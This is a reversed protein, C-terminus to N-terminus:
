RRRRRALDAGEAGAFVGAAEVDARIVDEVAFAVAGVGLGVGGAGDADVALGLQAALLGQEFGGAGVQGDADRPDEARIAGAEDVADELAGELEVGGLGDAVFPGGGAEGEIEGRMSWGNRRSM